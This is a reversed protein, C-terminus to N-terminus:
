RYYVIAQFDNLKDSVPPQLPSREWDEQGKTQLEKSSKSIKSIKERQKHKKGKPLQKKWGQVTKRNRKEQFPDPYMRQVYVIVKERCLPPRLSYETM